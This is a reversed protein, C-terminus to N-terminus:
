GVVKVSEREILKSRVLVGDDRRCEGKELMEELTEVALRAVRANNGCLTTLPPNFNSGFGVTPSMAIISLEDPIGIGSMAALDYLAKALV